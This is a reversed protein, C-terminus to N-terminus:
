NLLWKRFRTIYENLITSGKELSPASNVELVYYRKEGSSTSEEGTSLIIDVAGFDLGLVGVSAIALEKLRDQVLDVDCKIFRWGNIHNRTYKNTIRGEVGEDTKRSVGIVEGKFVHVRWEKYIPILELWHSSGFCNKFDRELESINRSIQFGSGGQHYTTRGVVPFPIKDHVEEGKYRFWPVSIGAERFMQLAKLKNSSNDISKVSNLVPLHELGSYSDTSGWRIVKSVKHPSLRSNEISKQSYCGLIKTIYSGTLGTKGQKFIILDVM